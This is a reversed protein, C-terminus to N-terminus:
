LTLRGAHVDDHCRNCLVVLNEPTNSGRDAHRLRHHLELIRPDAQSWQRMSWGCEPNQCRNGDREYVVRQVEVTIHRDHPEAIRDVSLLVYEGVKLDPRGTTKTAIAYGEETRLERTRRGFEHKKKAVYALEETTVKRLVNEKLYQLIRHKAGGGMKRIRNAVHWRRALDSDPQDDTLLYEDPKLFVGSDEDRSQGTLIPFGHEVRLERIRRAYESIGSVIELEVGAIVIGVHKQLYVKIREVAAKSDIGNVAVSSIGLCRTQYHIEVLALVKQRLSLDKLNVRFSHLKANLEDILDEPAYAKVRRAM